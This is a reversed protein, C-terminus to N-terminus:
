KKKKKLQKNRCASQHGTAGGGGRGAGGGGGGGRGGRGGGGTKRRDRYWTSPPGEPAVGTKKKKEGRRGLICKAPNSKETPEDDTWIGGRTARSAGTKKENAHTPGQPRPPLDPDLRRKGPRTRHQRDDGGINIGKETKVPCPKQGGLKPM